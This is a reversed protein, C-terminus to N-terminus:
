VKQPDGLLWKREDIETKRFSSIRQKELNQDTKREAAKIQILHWFRTRSQKQENKFTYFDYFEM